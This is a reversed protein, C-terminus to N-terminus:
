ARGRRANPPPHQRSKRPTQGFKIKYKPVRCFLGLKCVLLRCENQQSRYVSACSVWRASNPAMGQTKKPLLGSHLAEPSCKRDYMFRVSLQFSMVGCAIVHIESPKVFFYYIPNNNTQKKNHSSPLKQDLLTTSQQPRREYTQLM